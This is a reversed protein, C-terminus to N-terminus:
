GYIIERYIQEIDEEKANVEGVIKGDKIFIYRDAIIELEKLIHSSILASKGKNKEDLIKERFKIVNDFDLGNIPEDLVYLQPDNMFCISLAVEQKMGISLKNIKKNLEGDFGLYNIAMKLQESDKNRLHANLELHEKITLYPYLSPGEILFSVNKLMNERDKNSDYGCVNISGSDKKFIDVITKMLTSKGSGNKGILGVIEGPKISFSVDELVKKNGFSKSVNNIDIRNM